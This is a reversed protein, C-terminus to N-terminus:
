VTQHKGTRFRLQLSPKEAFIKTESSLKFCTQSPSSTLPPEHAEVYLSQAPSIRFAGFAIRLGQHHITDLQRLVSRRASGYVIYGNDLKSRVLARYVRLLVIWDARWDTHGVVRLIDVAKRVPPYFINYMTKLTLETNKFFFDYWPIQRDVTANYLSM